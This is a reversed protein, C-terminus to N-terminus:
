MMSFCRSLQSLIAHHGLVEGPKCGTALAKPLTGETGVLTDQALAAGAAAPHAADTVSGRNIQPESLEGGCLHVRDFLLGEKMKTGTTASEADASVPTIEAAVEALVPVDGLAAPLCRAGPSRVLHDFRCLLLIARANRIGVIFGNDAMREQQLGGDKRSAMAQGIKEDGISVDLGFRGAFQQPHHIGDVQVDFTHLFSEVARLAPSVQCGYQGKGPLGEGAADMQFDGVQQDGAAIIVGIFGFGEGLPDGPM